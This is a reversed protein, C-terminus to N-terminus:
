AASEAQTRQVISRTAIGAIQDHALQEARSRTMGADYQLIAAREAFADLESPAFRSRLRRRQQYAMTRCSASCWCAHRRRTSLMRGGCHQCCRVAPPGPDSPAPQLNPEAHNSTSAALEATARQWITLLFGTAIVREVDAMAFRPPLSKLAYHVVRSLNLALKERLTSQSDQGWGNKQGTVPRVRCGEATAGSLAIWSELLRERTQSTVALGYLHELGDTSVDLALWAGSGPEAAIAHAFVQACHRIRVPSREWDPM